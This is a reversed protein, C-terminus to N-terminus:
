ERGLSADCGGLVALINKSVRSKPKIDGILIGQDLATSILPFDNEIAYQVPHGLAQEADSLNITQFLRKQVRNAVILMPVNQLGQNALLNLQRRAQRLSGVTLEIVMVILDSRGILSLSWNTWSCPLDLFVTRFELAALDVLHFTQDTSVAELPM